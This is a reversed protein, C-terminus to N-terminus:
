INIKYIYFILLTLKEYFSNQINISSTMLFFGGNYPSIQSVGNLFNVKNKDIKM